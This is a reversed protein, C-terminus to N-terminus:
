KKVVSITLADYQVPYSYTTMDTNSIDKHSSLSRAEEEEYVPISGAKVQGAQDCDYLAYVDNLRAYTRYMIAGQSTVCSYLNDALTNYKEADVTRNGPVDRFPASPTESKIEVPRSGLLEIEIHGNSEKKLEIDFYGTLEEQNVNNIKKWRTGYVRLCLKGRDNQYGWVPASQGAFEIEHYYEPIENPTKYEIPGYTEIRVNESEHSTLDIIQEEPEDTVVPQISVDDGNKDTTKETETITATPTITEKPEAKKEEKEFAPVFVFKILCFLLALSVIVILSTLTLSKKKM